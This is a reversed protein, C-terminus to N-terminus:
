WGSVFNGSDFFDKEYDKMKLNMDKKPNDFIYKKTLDVFERFNESMPNLIHMFDAFNEMKYFPSIKFKAKSKVILKHININETRSYFILIDFEKNLFSITEETNFFKNNLLSLKQNSDLSKKDTYFYLLEVKNSKKELTTILEPLFFNEGIDSQNIIIGINQNSSIKTSFKQRKEDEKKLKKLLFKDFIICM